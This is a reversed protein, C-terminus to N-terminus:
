SGFGEVALIVSELNGGVALAPKAFLDKEALIVGIEASHPFNKIGIAAVRIVRSVEGILISYVAEIQGIAFITKLKHVVTRRNRLKFPYHSRHINVRIDIQFLGVTISGFAVQFKLYGKMM